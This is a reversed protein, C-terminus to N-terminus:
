AQKDFVIYWYDSTDGADAVVTFGTGPTKSKVIPLKGPTGGVTKMGPVVLSDATIGTNAVVVDTDGNATFSGWCGNAVEPVGARWRRVEEDVSINQSDDVLIADSLFVHGTGTLAADFPATGIERLILREFIAPFGSILQAGYNMGSLDLDFRAAKTAPLIGYTWAGRARAVLKCPTDGPDVDNAVICYAGAGAGGEMDVELRVSNDVRQYQLGRQNMNTGRLVIRSQKVGNIFWCYATASAPQINDTDLDIDLGYHYKDADTTIGVVRQANRMRGRIKVNKILATGGENTPVVASSVDLGDVPLFDPDGLADINIEVDEILTGGTGDGWYNNTQVSVMRCGMRGTVMTDIKVRRGITIGFSNFDVGGGAVGESGDKADCIPSFLGGILAYDTPVHTADRWSGTLCAGYITCGRLDFTINKGYFSLFQGVYNGGEDNNPGFARLGDDCFYAGQLCPVAVGLDIATDIAAQLKARQETGMQAPVNERSTGITGAITINKANTFGTITTWITSYGDSAAGYLAIGKGVDADTWRDVESTVTHPAGTSFSVRFEPVADSILGFWALNFRATATTGKVRGTGSYDFIQTNPADISGGALTLDYNALDIIGGAFRINGANLTTAATLTYDRDILLGAGRTVAEADAASLSAYESARVETFGIRVWAGAVFALQASPTRLRLTQGAGPAGSFAPAGGVIQVVLNEKGILDGVTGTAAVLARYGESENGVLGTIVEEVPMVFWGAGNLVARTDATLKAFTPQLPDADTEVTSGDGSAPGHVVGRFKEQTNVLDAIAQTPSLAM